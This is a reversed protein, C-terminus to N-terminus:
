FPTNVVWMHDGIVDVLKGDAVHKLARAPMDFVYVKHNRGRDDSSGILYRQDDIRFVRDLGADVREVLTKGTKLDIVKFSDSPSSKSPEWNPAFLRDGVAAPRIVDMAIKEFRHDRLSIRYTTPHEGSVTAIVHAADQWAIGFSFLVGEVWKATAPMAIKELTTGARDFVTLTLTPNCDNFAVPIAMAIRKGDPSLTAQLDPTYDSPPHSLRFLIKGRGGKRITDPNAIELRDPKVIIFGGTLPDKVADSFFADAWPMPYRAPRTGALEVLRFEGSNLEEEKLVRSALAYRGNGLIFHFLLPENAIPWSRITRGEFNMERLVQREPFIEVILYQFNANIESFDDRTAMRGGKLGRAGGFGITLTSQRLKSLHLLCRSDSPWEFRSEFTKTTANDPNLRGFAHEVSSRDMPESFRAVFTKDSNDLFLTASIGNHISPDAQLHIKATIFQTPSTGSDDPRAGAPIILGVLLAMLRIARM